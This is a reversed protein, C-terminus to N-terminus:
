GGCTWMTRTSALTESAFFPGSFDNPDVRHDRCRRDARNSTTPTSSWRGITGSSASTTTRIPFPRGSRSSAAKRRRRSTPSKRSREFPIARSFPTPFRMNDIGYLGVVTGETYGIQTTLGLGISFVLPGHVIRSGFITEEAYEESVHIENYDGSLGAFSTVDAETITRTRSEFTEGIEFEEFYKGSM